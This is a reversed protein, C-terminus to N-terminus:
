PHSACTSSAGVIGGGPTVQFLAAVCQADNPLKDLKVRWENGSDSKGIKHIYRVINVDTLTQKANEGGRVQTVAQPLYGVLYVDFRESPAAAAARVVWENGQREIQAGRDPRDAKRAVELASPDVGAIIARGDVVMEPTGVPSFKLARAAEDQRHTADKMSFPDRWGPGDWYDVHFGLALIDPRKALVELLKDAPPCSSCGQSTYLEVVMPRSAAAAGISVASLLLSMLVSATLGAVSGAM